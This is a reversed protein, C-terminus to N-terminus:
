DIREGNVYTAVMELGPTPSVELSPIFVNVLDDVSAQVKDGEGAFVHYLGPPCECLIALGHQKSEAVVRKEAEPWREYHQIYTGNPQPVKALIKPDVGFYEDYLVDLAGGKVSGPLGGTEKILLHMPHEPTDHHVEFFGDVGSGTEDCFGIELKQGPGIIIKM